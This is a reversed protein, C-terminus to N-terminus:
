RSKHTATRVLFVTRSHHLIPRGYKTEGAQLYPCDQTARLPNGQPYILYLDPLLPLPGLERGIDRDSAWGLLAHGPQTRSTRDFALVVDATAVAHRIAEANALAVGGFKHVVAKM